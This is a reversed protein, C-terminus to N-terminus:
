SSISLQCAKSIRSARSATPGHWLNQLQHELSSYPVISSCKISLLEAARIWPPKSPRKWDHANTLTYGGWPSCFPFTRGRGASLQLLWSYLLKEANSCWPGQRCRYIKRFCPWALMYHESELCQSLQRSYGNTPRWSQGMNKHFLGTLLVIASYPDLLNSFCLVVNGPRYNSVKTSFVPLIILFKSHLFSHLRLLYSSCFLTPQPGGLMEQPPIAGIGVHDARFDENCDLYTNCCFTHTSHSRIHFPFVTNNIPQINSSSNM